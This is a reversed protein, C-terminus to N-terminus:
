PHNDAPGKVGRLNAAEDSFWTGDWQLAVMPVAEKVNGTGVRTPMAWSHRQM